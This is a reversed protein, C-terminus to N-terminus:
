PASADADTPIPEERPLQRRKEVEDAHAQVKLQDAINKQDRLARFKALAANAQDDEHLRRYVRLLQYYALINLGIDGKSTSVRQLNAIGAADQGTDVQARGLYYYANEFGPDLAVAKQLLPLASQPKGLIVRLSGLKYYTTVSYPDNELEQQYALDAADTQGATWYLDGLEEHLGAYQPAREIALKYQDIANSTQGAEADAQGLVEHVRFSDPEIAFMQEYSQKSLLLHARGRHYLIDPDKPALIAAEDLSAAAATIQGSDLQCIGLWMRAKADKPSLKVERQLAEIAQPFAGIQYEAIGLFLNAGRLTPKLHRAKDLVAAAAPYDLQQELALGLDFYGEAFQPQERTVAKFSEVAQQLNDQRLATTGAMMDADVGTTQASSASFM